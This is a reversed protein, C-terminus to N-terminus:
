IKIAVTGIDTKITEMEHKGGVRIRHEVVKGKLPM